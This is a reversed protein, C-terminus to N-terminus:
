ILIISELHKFLTNILFRYKELKIVRLNTPRLFNIQDKKIKFTLFINNTRTNLQKFSFSYWFKIGGNCIYNCLSSNQAIPTM